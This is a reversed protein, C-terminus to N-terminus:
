EGEQTPIPRKDLTYRVFDYEYEIEGAQKEDFDCPILMELIGEKVAEIALKHDTCIEREWSVPDILTDGNRVDYILRDFEVAWTM